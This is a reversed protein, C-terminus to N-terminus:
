YRYFPPEEHYFQQQQGINSTFTMYINNDFKFLIYHMCYGSALWYFTNLPFFTAVHLFLLPVLTISNMWVNFHEYSLVKIYLVVVLCFSVFLIFMSFAFGQWPIFWHVLYIFDRIKFYNQFTIVAFKFVINNTIWASVLSIVVDVLSIIRM